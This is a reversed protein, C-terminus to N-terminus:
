PTAVPTPDVPAQDRPLNQVGDVIKWADGQKQLVLLDLQSGEIQDDVGGDTEVVVAVRGDSMQRMLPISLLLTQREPEVPTPTAFTLVIEDAVDPELIGDPDVLRRLYAEDYLAFSRLLDGANVCAVLQRITATVEARTQADVPAGDPVGEVPEPTTEPVPQSVLDRLFTLPRGEVICESPSVNPGPTPSADQTSAGRASLTAVMSTVVVALVLQRSAFRLWGTTPRTERTSM